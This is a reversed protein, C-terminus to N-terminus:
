VYGRRWLSCLRLKLQNFFYSALCEHGKRVPATHSTLIIDLADKSKAYLLNDDVCVRDLIWVEDNFRRAPM